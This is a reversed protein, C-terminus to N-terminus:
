LWTFNRSRRDSIAVFTDGDDFDGIFERAWLDKNRLQCTFPSGDRYPFMCVHDQLCDVSVVQYGDEMTWLEVLESIRNKVNACPHVMAKLETPYAGSLHYFFCLVRSPTEIDGEWKVNVWDTRPSKRWFNPHSRFTTDNRAYDTIVHIQHRGVLTDLLLSEILKFITDESLEPKPNGKSRWKEKFTCNLTNDAHRKTTVTIHCHSSRRVSESISEIEDDSLSDMPESSVAEPLNNCPRNSRFEDMLEYMLDGSLHDPNSSKPDSSEGDTYRYAKEIVLHDALRNAIQWDFTAHQFQATSSPNIATHKHNSEWAGSHTNNPSGFRLIDFVMHLLEHIKSTMWGEGETRPLLEKLGAVMKRLAKDVRKPAQDDNIDWFTDQKSWSLVILVLELWQLINEGQKPNKTGKYKEELAKRGAHTSLIM